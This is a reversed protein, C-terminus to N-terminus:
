GMAEYLALREAKTLNRRTIPMGGESAIVVWGDAPEFADDESGHFLLVYGRPSSLERGHGRAIRRIFWGTRETM